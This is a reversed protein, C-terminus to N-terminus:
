LTSEDHLKKLYLRALDFMQEGHCCPRSSWVFSATSKATESDRVGPSCVPQSSQSEELLADM